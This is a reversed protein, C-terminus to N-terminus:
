QWPIVYSTLYRALLYTLVIHIDGSHTHIVLPWGGQVALFAVGNWLGFGVVCVARVRWEDVADAAGTRWMERLLLHVVRSSIDGCLGSWVDEEAWGGDEEPTSLHEVTTSCPIVFHGDGASWRVWGPTENSANSHYGLTSPLWRTFDPLYIHVSVLEIQCNMSNILFTVTSPNGNWNAVSKLTFIRSDAYLFSTCKRM